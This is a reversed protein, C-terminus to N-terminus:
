SSYARFVIHVPIFQWKGDQQIQQRQVSTVVAKITGDDLPDNDPSWINGLQTAFDEIEETGIASPMFVDYVMIGVFEPTNQAIPLESTPLLTERLWLEKGDSNFKRGEWAIDNIDIIGSELLPQRILLRIQKANIM